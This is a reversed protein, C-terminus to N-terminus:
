VLVYRTARAKGEKSVLGRKVLDTLDRYATTRDINFRERYVKVNIERHTRLYQITERQRENLDKPLATEEAMWREGPGILTVIFSAGTDEYVPRPLGVSRMEGNMMDIGLGWAEIYKTEFLRQCITNNRRRCEHELNEVTVGQPLSGPSQVIIRDDFITGNQGYDRHACANTVAEQIVPLPYEHKKERPLKDTTWGFRINRTVFKM